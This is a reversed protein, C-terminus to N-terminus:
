RIIDILVKRKDLLVLLNMNTKICAGGLVNSGKKNGLTGITFLKIM